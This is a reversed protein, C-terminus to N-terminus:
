TDRIIPQMHLCHDSGTFLLNLTIHMGAEAPSAQGDIVRHAAAWRQANKDAGCHIPHMHIGGASVAHMLTHCGWGCGQSAAQHRGEAMDSLGLM